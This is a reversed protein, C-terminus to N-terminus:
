NIKEMLYFSGCILLTDTAVATEKAQNLATEVNTFTKFNLKSQFENKFQKQTVSRPSNFETFYYAADKPMVRVMEKWDKDNSAGFIIHLKTNNLQKIEQFLNIIGNVNHAADLLITPSEGIKQMRGKFNALPIIKLLARKIRESDLKWTNQLLKVAQMVTHINRQQFQGLLDTKYIPQQINQSFVIEANHNKAANEFLPYLKKDADGIVVPISPKIIGAKESAIETLTNGLFSTHDIGINTIIALEPLLVNTSDLRGGLGTEIIAIDCKQNEFATFAMATTIEFFSPNISEFNSRINQIFDVVFNQDIMQGNIKIRERFDTIHPSTFLGTKYGHMQFIAALIHSVSGKGNTGAIHITKIKKHPNDLLDLLDIVRSLGPKYAVGGQHQYNPVQRFLWNVVETYSM